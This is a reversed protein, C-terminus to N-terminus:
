VLADTLGDGAVDSVEGEIADEAWSVEDDGEGLERPCFGRFHGISGCARGGVVGEGGERAIVARRSAVEEEGVQGEVVLRIFGVGVSLISQLARMVSARGEKRRQLRM